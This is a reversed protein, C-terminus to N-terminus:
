PATPTAHPPDGSRLPFSLESLSARPSIIVWASALLVFASPDLSFSDSRAPSEAFFSLLAFVLVESDLPGLKIHAQQPRLGRLVRLVTFFLSDSGSARGVLSSRGRIPWAERGGVRVAM